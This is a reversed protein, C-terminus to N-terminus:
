DQANFVATSCYSANMEEPRGYPYLEGLLTSNEVAGHHTFLLLSESSSIEGLTLIVNCSM